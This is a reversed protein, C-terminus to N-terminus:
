SSDTGSTAADHLKTYHNNEADSCRFVEQSSHLTTECGPRHTMSHTERQVASTECRLASAVLRIVPTFTSTGRRCLSGQCARNRPANHTERSFGAPASTNPETEFAAHKSAILTKLSVAARQEFAGIAKMAAWRSTPCCHWSSLRGFTRPDPTHLAHTTNTIYLSM